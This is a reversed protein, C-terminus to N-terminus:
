MLFGELFQDGVFEIFQKLNAALHEHHFLVTDILIQITVALM